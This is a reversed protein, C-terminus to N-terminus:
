NGLCFKVDFTRQDLNQLKIREDRERGDCGLEYFLVEVREQDVM